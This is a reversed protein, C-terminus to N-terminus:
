LCGLPLNQGQVHGIWSSTGHVGIQKGLRAEDDLRARRRPHRRDGSRHQLSHAVPQHPDLNGAFGAAGDLDHRFPRVSRHLDLIALRDRLRQRRHEIDGIRDVPGIPQLNGRGPDVPRQHAAGIELAIGAMQHLDLHRDGMLAALPEAARECADLAVRHLQMAIVYARAFFGVDQQHHLINRVGPQHQGVLQDRFRHPAALGGLALQPLIEPKFRRRRRMGFFAIRRFAVFRLRFQLRVLLRAGFFVM